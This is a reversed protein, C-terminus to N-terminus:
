LHGAIHLIIEMDGVNATWNYGFKLHVYMNDDQQTNDSFTFTCMEFTCAYVEDMRKRRSGHRM